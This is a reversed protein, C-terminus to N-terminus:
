NDLGLTEIYQDVAEQAGAANPLYFEVLDSMQEATFSVGSEEIVKDLVAKKHAMNIDIKSCDM